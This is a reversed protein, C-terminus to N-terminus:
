EGEKEQKEQEREAKKEDVEAKIEDLKEVVAEKTAAIEEESRPPAVTVIVTELSELVKVNKPINLDKIHISSDIIELKSLDVSFNHPLDNPLAEVEIEFVSKNLIGGFNKVAPSEGIFELAVPAKIKEDLKVQYFDVHIPTHAIFDYQIDHILVPRKDDKKGGEIELTLISSEGAAKFAKDFDKKAIALKVNEVNHGYLVAPILGEKKLAEVKADNRIIVKLKTEM